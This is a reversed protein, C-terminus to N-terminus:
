GRQSRGAVGFALLTQNVRKKLRLVRRVSADLRQAGDGTAFRDQLDAVLAGLSEFDFRLTEGTTEKMYTFPLGAFILIDNGAAFAMLAAQDVSGAGFRAAAMLPDDSVVVGDFDLRERIWHDIARQSLSFPIRRTELGLGTFAIHAPMIADVGEAVLKEYPFILEEVQDVKYLAAPLVKHPNEDTFGHGPFHKAVSLVGGDRLGQMFRTAYDAVLQKSAGFARDGIIDNEENTNIDAVPALDMVVGMARLERGTIEGARYANESNGTAAIGMAGPLLTVGKEVILASGNEQDAAIILPLKLRTRAATEQLANTLEAVQRAISTDEPRAQQMGEINPEFLIISGLHFLQILEEAQELDHLNGRFGVMLLQGIKEAATMQGLLRDIDREDQETLERLPSAATASACLVFSLSVAAFLLRASITQFCSRARM